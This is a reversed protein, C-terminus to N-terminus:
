TEEASNGVSGPLQTGLRKDSTQDAAYAAQRGWRAAFLGYLAATNSAGQRVVALPKLNDGLYTSGTEVM